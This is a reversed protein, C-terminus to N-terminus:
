DIIEVYKRNRTFPTFIAGGGEFFKMFFEYYQLRSTHVYAGLSNILLNFIHGPIFIIISLLFGIYPFRWILSCIENISLALLGTTLGLAFLRIYSLIDALSNGTVVGYWGYWCWFLKLAIKDQSTWHYYIISLSSVFFVSWLINVVYGPAQWFKLVSTIVILVLSFQIGIAPIQRFLLSKWERYRYRQVLNILVGVLVQIFGLIIALLMFTTANEIADFVILAHRVQKLPYFINPLRTVFDGLWGGTLAGCILSAIGGYLFVKFFKMAGTSLRWNRIAYVTFAIIVIGYVADTLCLGFFLAFFPALYPTPDVGGYAPRGYLGTIAEFPRSARNNELVVPTKEGKQPPLSIVEADPYHKTLFEIVSKENKEEIWGLIVFTKKTYFIRDVIDHKAKQSHYYDHLAMITDKHCLLKRADILLQRNEEKIAEREAVLANFVDEPKGKLGPLFVREANLEKAIDLLRSSISKHCICILYCNRSDQTVLSIDFRDGYEKLNKELAEYMSLNMKLLIIDTNRKDHLDEISVDIDRWPELRHCLNRNEEIKSRISGSAADLTKAREYLEKLDFKKLINEIKARQFHLRDQKLRQLLTEPESYRNFFDLLYDIELIYGQYDEVNEDSKIEGKYEIEREMIEKATRIHVVGRAQLFDIIEGSNKAHSFIYLKKMPSISM